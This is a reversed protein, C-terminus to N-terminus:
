VLRLRLCGVVGNLAHVNLLSLSKLVWLQDVAGVNFVLFFSVAALLNFLRGIGIGSLRKYIASDLIPPFACTPGEWRRTIELM